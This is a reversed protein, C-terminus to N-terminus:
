LAVWTTKLETYSDLAHGSEGCGSGGQRFGVFPVTM